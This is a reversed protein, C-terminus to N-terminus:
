LRDKLPRDQAAIRKKQRSRQWHCRRPLKFSAQMSKGLAFANKQRLRGPKAFYLMSEGRSLARVSIRQVSFIVHKVDKVSVSRASATGPGPRQLRCAQTVEIGPTFRPQSQTCQGLYKPPLVLLLMCFPIIPCQIKRLSASAFSSPASNLRENLPNREYTIITM